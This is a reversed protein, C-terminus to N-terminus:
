LFGNSQQEFTIPFIRILTKVLSHVRCTFLQDQLGGLHFQAAQDPVKLFMATNEPSFASIVSNVLVWHSSRQGRDRSMALYFLIKYLLDAVIQSNRPGLM